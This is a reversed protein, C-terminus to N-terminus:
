QQYGHQSFTWNTSQIHAESFLVTSNEHQMANGSLKRKSIIPFTSVQLVWGRLGFATRDGILAVDAWPCILGWPSCCLCSSQVRFLETLDHPPHASTKAHDSTLQLSLFNQTKLQELGLAPNRDRELEYTGLLQKGVMMWCFPYILPILGKQWHFWSVSSSRHLVRFCTQTSHCDM